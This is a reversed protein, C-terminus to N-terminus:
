RNSFCRRVKLASHLRYKIYDLIHVPLILWKVSESAEGLTDVSDHHHVLNLLIELLLDPQSMRERGENDVKCAWFPWPDCEIAIVFFKYRTFAKSRINFADVKDAIFVGKIRVQSVVFVKLVPKNNVEVLTM